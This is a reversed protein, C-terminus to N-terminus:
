SARRREVPVPSYFPTYAGDLDFAVQTAPGSATAVFFGLTEIPYAHNADVVSNFMTLEVGAAKIPTLGKLPKIPQAWAPASACLSLALCVDLWRWM